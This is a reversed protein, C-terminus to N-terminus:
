YKLWTKLLAPCLVTFKVKMRLQLLTMIQLDACTPDSHFKAYYPVCSKKKKKQLGDKEIQSKWIGEILLIVTDYVSKGM